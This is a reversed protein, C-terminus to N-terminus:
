KPMFLTENLDPFVRGFATYFVPNNHGTIEFRGWVWFIDSCVSTCRIKVQQGCHIETEGIIWRQRDQDFRLKM